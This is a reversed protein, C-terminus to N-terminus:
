RAGRLRKTHPSWNVYRYMRLDKANICNIHVVRYKKTDEEQQLNHTQAQLLCFFAIGVFGTDIHCVMFCKAWACLVDSYGRVSESKGQGM